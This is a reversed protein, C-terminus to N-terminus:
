DGFMHLVIVRKHPRRRHEFLYIAQWIGLTPRGNEVPITLQTSTLMTRLHAPMDDPGEDDHAYSAYEPVLNEFFRLVDDRVAQSANEQVTLSASTHCCWITVLGTAIGQAAVWATLDPTVDFLGKGRTSVTLRHIAQRM